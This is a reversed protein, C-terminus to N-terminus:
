ITSTADSPASFRAALRRCAALVDDRFPGVIKELEQDKRALAEPAWYQRVPGIPLAETRDELLLFISFDPELPKPAFELALRSLRRAGEVLEIRGDLIAQAIPGAAALEHQATPEM